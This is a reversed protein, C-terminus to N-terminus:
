PADGWVARVAEDVAKALRKAIAAEAHPEVVAEVLTAGPHRTAASLADDLEQRTLARRFGVGFAAAAHEFRTVHPTTFHRLTSADVTRAVPLQEFIRGGGNNIAVLVLPTTSQAAVALSALDHLLSVDGLLLVVPRGLSAAGAAGAVLGDIGNAGRQSLVDCRAWGAPCHRNVLRIPLSNGVMFVADAPVAAVVRRAVQAELLAPEADIVRARAQWAAESAERVTARWAHSASSGLQKTVAELTTAPDGFIMADAANTPDRWGWPSLVWHAAHPHRARWREWGGSTPADGVQLIFDVPEALFRDADLLLDLADGDIVRNGFRQQSAPEGCLVFGAADAFAHLTESLGRAWAPLPGCVVYGRRAQSVAQALAAVAESPPVSVPTWTRVPRFASPEFTEDAGPELPKRGRVNLHVPGPVPGLSEAVAQAIMRRLANPSSSESAGSLELFRRVHGGFLKTQDITQPARCGQLEFPRDATLALLPVGSESAEIIAPYWHAGATGSTCLLISPKGSLRAQGLAFFAAAREDVVDHIRFGGHRVFALVFPTSRSGPSVVVETVGALALADVLASAWQAQTVIM